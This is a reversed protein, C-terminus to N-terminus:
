YLMNTHIYLFEVFWFFFYKQYFYKYYITYYQYVMSVTNIYYQYVTSLYQVNIFFKAGVM